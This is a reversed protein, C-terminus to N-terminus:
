IETGEFVDKITSINKESINDLTTKADPDHRAKIVYEENGIVSRAEATLFSENSNVIDFHLQHSFFLTMESGHEIIYTVNSLATKLQSHAPTLKSKLVRLIESKEPPKIISKPESLNGPKVPENFVPANDVPPAQELVEEQVSAQVQPAKGSLLMSQLEQLKHLMQRPRILDKFNILKLLCVEIETQLDISYRSKDYTTFLIELINELDEYSLEDTFQKKITINSYTVQGNREVHMKLLLVDRFFQIMEAIVQSPAVGHSILTYYREIVAKRNKQVISSILMAMREDGVLGLKEQIKKLTIDYECFSIVQDLLTYSDRMSGKGENAIWRIADDEYKVDYNNLVGVLSNFILDTPILRFYFQQCRSRITPLVKNIETTAFIFVVRPPPEEITKLLANFASKSLMHVEDIIYVKYNSHVPPYLLEEQIVRVDNVSTNSAGDIEIVDTNGGRTITVCNDCTNCPIGTTGTECNLAKAIIRAASTKGVGRPGSLLYANAIRGAQISNQLTTAVFEQGILDQFLQPRFKTATIANIM